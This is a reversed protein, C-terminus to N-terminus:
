TPVRLLSIKMELLEVLVADITGGPLSRRLAAVIVRAQDRYTARAEALDLAEPMQELAALRLDPIPESSITRHAKYIPTATLDSPRTTM